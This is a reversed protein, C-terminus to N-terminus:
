AGDSSEETPAPEAKRTSRKRPAPKTAVPEPSETAPEAAAATVPETETAADPAAATAKPARPARAKKPKAEAGTTAAAEGAALISDIRVETLDSRHGAARRYRKKAKYKFVRLKPGRRHGVVVAAVRVGAVADGSKTAGDGGTLLVPELTVTSGVEAELRDVLLRDGESVRYQHGGHALIAYM